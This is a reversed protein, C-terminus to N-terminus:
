ASQVVSGEGVRCVSNTGGFPNPECDNNYPDATWQGDIVLRYVFRGAPLRLCLEHVGLATNRKMVHSSPSWNNFSGAIAITQGSALPQVFLMGQNTERVGLLRATGPATVPKAETEVLKLTGTPLVTPVPAEPLSAVPTMPAFPQVGPGAKGLAVRRLFEQARRAVDEARNPGAKAEVCEANQKEAARDAGKEALFRATIPPVTVDADGTEAGADLPGVLLEGIWKALTAYDAAGTSDPAYERVPQGFSAAERLRLDRRIVVPVVRDKFRRHLEGLLDEAVTSAAEHITPLLWVPLQVGLRRSLTRVTSVQKTAGQLSFYSTEVPILVLDACALANYTLLGITPPCDVCVVDYEHKFQSVVAALRKERDLLDALGGRSAELGALKTRSPALDLNRAVRWLLRPADVGSPGVALMADGIDMEIRSEPVGLGAACHSQPDMDVLLTRRGQAALQSALNIATTTKGCGGKQNIIAITRM